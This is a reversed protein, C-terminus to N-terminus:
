PLGPSPRPVHHPAPHPTAHHSPHAPQHQPLAFVPWLDCLGHEAYPGATRVLTGAPSGQETDHVVVLKTGTPYSLGTTEPPM